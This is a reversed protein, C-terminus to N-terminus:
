IGRDIDYAVQEVREFHIDFVLLTWEGVKGEYFLLEVFAERIAQFLYEVEVARELLCGMIRM